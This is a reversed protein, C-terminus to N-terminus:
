FQQIDDSYRIIKGRIKIGERRGDLHTVKIKVSEMINMLEAHKVLNAFAKEYNIFGIFYHKM